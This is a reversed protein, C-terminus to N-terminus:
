PEIGAKAPGDERATVFAVSGVEEQNRKPVANFRHLREGPRDPLPWISDQLRGSDKPSPTETV